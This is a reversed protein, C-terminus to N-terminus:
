PIPRVGSAGSAEYRFVRESNPKKDPEDKKSLIRAADAPTKSASHLQATLSLEEPTLERDLAEQVAALYQVLNLSATDAM